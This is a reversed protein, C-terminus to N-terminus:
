LSITVFDNIGLTETDNIIIGTIIIVIIGTLKTKKYKTLWYNGVPTRRCV